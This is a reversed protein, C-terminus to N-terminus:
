DFKSKMYDTSKRTGARQITIPTDMFYLTGNFNNMINNVSEENYFEIFAYFAKKKHTAKPVNHDPHYFDIIHGFASFAMMLDADSIYGSINRVIISAPKYETPLPKPSHSYPTNVRIHRSANIWKNIFEERDTISNTANETIWESIDPLFGFAAHVPVWQGARKHFAWPSGNRKRVWEPWDSPKDNEWDNYFIAAKDANSIIKLKPTSMKTQLMMNSRHALSDRIIDSFDAMQGRMEYQSAFQTIM